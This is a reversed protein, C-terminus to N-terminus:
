FPIESTPNNHRENYVDDFDMDPKFDPIYGEHGYEDRYDQIDEIPAACCDRNCEGSEGCHYCSHANSMSLQDYESEAVYGQGGCQGCIAM